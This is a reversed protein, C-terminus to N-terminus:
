AVFMLTGKRKRSRALEVAQPDDAVLRTNKIRIRATDM